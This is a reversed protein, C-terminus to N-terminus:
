ISSTAATGCEPCRGPTARLDYGCAPCLGSRKRRGRRWRAAMRLAPPTLLVAAPLAHPLRLTWRRFSLGEVDWYDRGRETAWDFRGLGFNRRHASASEPDLWNLPTPQWAFVAAERGSAGRKVFDARGGAPFRYDDMSLLLHGAYSSFHYGRSTRAGVASWYHLDDLWWHSRVWLATVAVCLLLSLTTLLNLLHRKM